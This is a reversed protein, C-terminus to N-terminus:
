LTIGFESELRRMINRAANQNSLNAKRAAKLRTDKKPDSGDEIVIKFCSFMEELSRVEYFTSFLDQSPTAPSMNNRSCILHILPKGTAAFEPLFSGCDTIMVSSSAFLRMYDGTDVVSGIEAWESFYADVETQTWAGSDVLAKKLAPHPKFVWKIDGHAKAYQLIERGNELFTSLRVVPKFKESTKSITFHPAYIVRRASNEMPCKQMEDFATHGASIMKGSWFWARVGRRYEAIWAENLVFYFALFRHFTLRSEIDIVGYSPVFYPVYCPLAKRYTRLIDHVGDNSWPQQYFIMDPSFDLMNKRQNKDCDYIEVCKNGLGEHFRRASAMGAKIECPSKGIDSDRISIGVFPDFHESRSMMEYLSQTKWKATESDVFLVRIKEKRQIKRRIRMLSRFHYFRARFAKRDLKNMNFIGHMSGPSFVHLVDRITHLFGMVM